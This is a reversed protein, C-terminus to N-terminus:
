FTKGNTKGQNKKGQKTNEPKVKAAAKALRKVKSNIAARKANKFRRFHEM